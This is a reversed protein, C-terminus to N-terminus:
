KCVARFVRMFNGGLIKRVDERSYGRQLLASTLSPFQSVDKLGTPPSSSFGDFDSGLAVCDIGGINKIHDLHRLVDELTATNSTTLFAPYFVVGIVGGNDAIAKIQSDTLNRSHARLVYAGSHSAIIPNKSTALIDDVTKRGVHSVDIIMGLSDMTRIVQRGFESLGVQDARSDAAAVAWPTSNNWTITMMRVGAQYFAVLNDLSNEISHGGEVVVIGAIKGQGVFTDFEGVSHALGIEASNRNVQAKMTDLFTMSTQFHTSPAYTTPSVWIAFVQGDVGGDRLRPIDTHKTTHREAIQYTFGSAAIQEVVDNHLDIVFARDHVTDLLIDARVSDRLAVTTTDPEYVLSSTIV